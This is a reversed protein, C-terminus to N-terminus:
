NCRLGSKGLRSRCSAMSHSCRLRRSESRGLQTKMERFTSSLGGGSCIHLCLVQVDWQYRVRWTSGDLYDFYTEKIGQLALKMAMVMDKM